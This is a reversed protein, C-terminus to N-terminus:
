LELFFRLIGVLQLSLRINLVKIGTEPTAHGSNQGKGGRKAAKFLLGCSLSECCIGAKIM